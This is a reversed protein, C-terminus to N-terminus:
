KSSVTIIIIFVTPASRSAIRQEIIISYALRFTVIIDALIISCVTIAIFFLRTAPQVDVILYAVIAGLVRRSAVVISCVAPAIVCVETQVCLKAVGEAFDVALHVCAAQVIVVAEACRVAFM